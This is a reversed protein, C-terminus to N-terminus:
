NTGVARTSYVTLRQGVKISSSQLDNWEKLTEVSTEYRRAISTLTEGSKVRHVTKSPTTRGSTPVLAAPADGSRAVAPTVEESDDRLRLKPARPIILRQGIDVKASTRLYNAEALDTRAVGLKRAISLLTDGKKVVYRDLPALDAPDVGVLRTRVLEAMGEPVKLEYDAERLPTTWRRLEPNLQQVTEVPLELWDAIMRLDVATPLTVSELAIIPEPQVVIGYQEPNKAVLVAALILPVYDRTERPLYRRSSSVAWFDDKGSRKMARQVRGPGGNYSALALHWDGFMSYLAKLYKAAARTAKEPDAREDIYWDHRLGNEVGTGKMFQWIGRAKAKSVATPKFASEILPVYALDLPLGEERFISQIMPLYKSGRGMGDELYGKLRGNFLEVFSLVKPNLPIDIDHTTLEPDAAIANATAPTVKPQEDAPISLLDDIPARETPRQDQADSPTEGPETRSDQPPQPESATRGDSASAQPIPASPTQASAVRPVVFGALLLVCVPGALTARRLMAAYEVM